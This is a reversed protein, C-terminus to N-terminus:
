AEVFSTNMKYETFGVYKEKTLCGNSCFYFMAKWIYLYRIELYFQLAKCVHTTNNDRIQFFTGISTLATNNPWLIKVFKLWGCQKKELGHFNRNSTLAAWKLPLFLDTPLSVLHSTVESIWIEAWHRPQYEFM